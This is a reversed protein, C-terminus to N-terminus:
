AMARANASEALARTRGGFATDYEVLGERLTEYDEHTLRPPTITNTTM